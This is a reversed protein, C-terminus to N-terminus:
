EVARVALVGYAHNTTRAAIEEAHGLATAACPITEDKVGVPRYEFQIRRAM